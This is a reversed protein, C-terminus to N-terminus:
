NHDLQLLQEDWCLKAPSGIKLLLSATQGAPRDWTTVVQLQWRQLWSPDTALSPGLTASHAACANLTGRGTVMVPPGTM